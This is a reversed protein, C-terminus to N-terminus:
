PALVVEVQRDRRLKPDAFEGLQIKQAPVGARILADRVAAIRRDILTQDRMGNGIPDMAGDIGLRMSPHKAMYGAIESIKDLDSGKIDARDYDFLFERYATWGIAAVPGDNPTPNTAAQQAVGTEHPLAAPGGNRGLDAASSPPGSALAGLLAAAAVLGLARGFSDPLCASPRKEAEQRM